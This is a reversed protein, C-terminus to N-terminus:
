IMIGAKPGKSILRVLSRFKEREPTLPPTVLAKQSTAEEVNFAEQGSHTESM